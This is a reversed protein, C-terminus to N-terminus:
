YILDISGKGQRIIKYDNEDTCDVVTSAVNMGYGGDIILDVLDKYKEYILDPDTSYEIIADEDIISTSVIPSGLKKVIERVINNNPIRIGVTKKKNSFIKPIKNTGKLIITFPGPFIRKLLKFTRSNIQKAYKSLDSLDFCIFSFHADKLKVGKIRAIRELAKKNNINCGLGYVTDTPYIIIGGNELCKVVEDIKKEDPNDNYIRKLM